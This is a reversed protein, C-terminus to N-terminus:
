LIHIKNIAQKIKTELKSFLESQRQYYNDNITTFNTSMIEAGTLFKWYLIYDNKIESRIKKTQEDFSQSLQEEMCEIKKDAQEFQVIIEQKDNQAIVKNNYCFKIKDKISNLERLTDKLEEILSNKIQRSDDVWRKIFFPLLIGIIATLLFTLPEFIRVETILKIRPIDNILSGLILGLGFILGVLILKLYKM